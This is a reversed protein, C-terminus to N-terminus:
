TLLCISRNVSLRCRKSLHQRLAANTELLISIMKYVIECEEASLTRGEPMLEARGTMFAPFLDQPVKMEYVFQNWSDLKMRERLEKVDEALRETKTKPKDIVPM